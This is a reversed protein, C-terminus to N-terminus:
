FRIERDPERRCQIPHRRDCCLPGKQTCTTKGNTLIASCLSVFAYQPDYHKLLLEVTPFLNVMM